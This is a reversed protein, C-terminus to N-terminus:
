PQRCATAGIDQTHTQNDRGTFIWTVTIPKAPTQAVVHHAAWMLLFGGAFAGFARRKALYVM